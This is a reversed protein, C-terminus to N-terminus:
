KTNDTITAYQSAWSKFDELSGTKYASEKIGGNDSGIPTFSTPYGTENFKEESETEGDCDDEKDNPSVGLNECLRKGLPNLLILIEPISLKRIKNFDVEKYHYAIMSFQEHLRFNQKDILDAVESVSLQAKEKTAVYFGIVECYLYSTQM